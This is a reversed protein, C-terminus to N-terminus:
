GDKAITEEPPPSQGDGIPADEVSGTMNSNLRGNRWWVAGMEEGYQVFPWEVRTHGDHIERPTLWWPDGQTNVMM